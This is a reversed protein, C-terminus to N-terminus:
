GNSGGTSVPTFTMLRQRPVPRTREIMHAVVKFLETTFRDIQAPTVAPVARSDACLTLPSEHPWNYPQDAKAHWGFAIFQGSGSFVELPHLKRTKIVGRARYVRITKPPLGIRVLPTVGLIADALENAFAAHVPNIIDADIAVVESQAAFCCCYDDPPQYENVTAVLDADDWEYNNLGPWEKMAPVKSTQLGPFPRWGRAATPQAVAAFTFPVCKM